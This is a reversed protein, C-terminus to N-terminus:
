GRKGTSFKQSAMNEQVLKKLFLASTHKKGCIRSPTNRLVATKRFMRKVNGGKFRSDIRPSERASANCQLDRNGEAVLPQVLQEPLSGREDEEDQGAVLEPRGLGIRVEAEGLFLLFHLFHQRLGAEGLVDGLREAVPLDVVVAVRRCLALAAVVEVSPAANWGGETGFGGVVGGEGTPARDDAM